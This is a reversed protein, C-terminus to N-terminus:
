KKMRLTDWALRNMLSSTSKKEKEAKLVLEEHRAILKSRIALSASMFALLLLVGLLDLVAQM